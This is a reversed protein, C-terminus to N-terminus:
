IKTSSDCWFLTGILKSLNKLDSAVKGNKKRALIACQNNPNIM